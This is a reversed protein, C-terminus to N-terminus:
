LTREKKRELCAVLKLLLLSLVVLTGNQDVNAGTIVPKSLVWCHGSMAGCACANNTLSLSACVSM